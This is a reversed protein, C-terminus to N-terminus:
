GDSAQGKERVKELFRRSRLHRGLVREIVLHPESKALSPYRAFGTLVLIDKEFDEILGALNYKEGNLRGLAKSLLEFVAPQTQEEPILRDVLEALYFAAASMTLETRLQPFSRVTRAETLIKFTRGEALFVVAQNFLEVNGARRSNIRRIGKALVKLKGRNRTLVTLIKDAEGFNTRKIIIGETKYTPM